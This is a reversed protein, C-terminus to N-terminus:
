NDSPLARDPDADPDAPEVETECGSFMFKAGDHDPDLSVSWGHATALQEVISLGLGTGDAGTTYGEQFIEDRKGAPIGPGDDAVVFGDATLEVTLQVDERGHEIANRFLNEFTRVLRNEDAEITGSSAVSLTARLTDVNEWATTAVDDFSVARVESVEQRDRSIALIDEIIAEMRDFSSEVKDLYAELTVPDPPTAEEDFEQDVMEVYGDAVNLPNRLDHSVTSAFQDLQENKRELQESYRKIESVDALRLTYGIV